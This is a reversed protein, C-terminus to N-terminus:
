RRLKNGLWKGADHALMFLGIILLGVLIIPWSFICVVLGDEDFISEVFVGFLLYGVLILVYILPHM